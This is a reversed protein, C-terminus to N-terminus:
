GRRYERVDHVGDAASRVEGAAVTPNLLAGFVVDKSSVEYVFITSILNSFIEDDYRTLLTVGNSTSFLAGLFLYLPVLPGDLRIVTPVARRAEDLSRLARVHLGIRPGHLWKTLPQASASNRLRRWLGGDVRRIGRRRDRGQDDRGAGLRVRRGPSLLRFLPLPASVSKM